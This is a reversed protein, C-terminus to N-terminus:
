GVGAEQAMVKLHQNLWANSVVLNGWVWGGVVDEVRRGEM